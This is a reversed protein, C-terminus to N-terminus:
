FLLPAARCCYCILIKYSLNVKRQESKFKKEVVTNNPDEERQKKLTKVINATMIICENIVKDREKYGYRLKQFLHECNQSPDSANRASISQTPLTNNLAYIIKDDLDRM